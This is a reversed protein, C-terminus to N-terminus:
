AGLTQIKSESLNEINKNILEVIFLNQLMIDYQKMIHNRNEISIKTLATTKIADIHEQITM